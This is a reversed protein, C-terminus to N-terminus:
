EWLALARVPCGTGGVLRLPTMMFQFRHHPIKNMNAILETHVVLRQGHRTHNPYTIDAPSDTSIADTCINVVGQDLIWDTAEGDLGPYQTVFAAPDNWKESVGTYYMLTDGARVTVGADDLGRKIDDLKIHTRPKVHSVNIWVAETFMHEIPFTEITLDSRHKNFHYIADVHTSVHDCTVLGRVAYGEFPTDGLRLVCEEHTLHWWQSTKAHGPYVPMKESLERTLDLVNYTKGFINIQTQPKYMLPEIAQLL